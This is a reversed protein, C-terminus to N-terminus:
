ITTLWHDMSALNGDFLISAQDVLKQTMKGPCVEGLKRGDISQIPQIKAISSTFFAETCNELEKALVDREVVPIGLSDFTELFAKRTIGPLVSRLTPTVVESEFVLFLNSTSGEAVYGMTDLLIVDDFGSKIADMKALFPSIYTGSVKAHLPITEPHLKRFRSQKVKVPKSHKSQPVGQKDSDVVFITLSVTPSTPTVELEIGAYYAFFKIIGRKVKNERVTDIVYAILEEPPLPIDMMSLRASNYLRAVHEKLGFIAPGKSTNLLDVVEFLASGRSFSHSLLPVNTQEWDVFEGNHWAKMLKKNLIILQLQTPRLAKFTCTM